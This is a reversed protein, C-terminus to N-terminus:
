KSKEPEFLDDAKQPLGTYTYDDVEFARGKMLRNILARSDSSAVVAFVPGAPVTEMEPTVPKLDIKTDGPKAEATSGVKTEPAAAKLRKEEPKRGLSITLTKGDFTTLKMTRMHAAAQAVLPDKPDVTDTFRLSTLTTLLSSVKEAVLKKGAPPAAASWPADKKARAAVVPPGQEFSIEVKAVDDPKVTVLRADAWGKADTDLWSHVGSFFASSEGGFRVFRGNGSDPTKGLTLRWIEKGSSDDLVISSDKFELHGLREPNDTVFREVKAENLEQVFRSIKDFDAPMDFYSPVRWTGDGDKRLEVKKGQDSIVIGSARSVTDAGLLPQGVRPDAAPAPEPRNSLFAVVSLVALLVVSIVLTRLKM